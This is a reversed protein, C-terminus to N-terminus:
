AVPALEVAKYSKPEALQKQVENLKYSLFAVVVILACSFGLAIGGVVAGRDVEVHIKDVEHHLDHLEGDVQHVEADVELVQTEFGVYYRVTRSNLDPQPYRNNNGNASLGNTAYFAFSSRLISIDDSSVMVPEDFVIWTVAETCPPTTFSGPYTYYSRRAPLFTDYPNVPTPSDVEGVQVIGKVLAVNSSSGQSWLNQLFTNNSPMFDLASQQLFVGLVVYKTVGNVVASHVLHAEASYFGGAISHESPSHFHIQALTWEIGEYSMTLNACNAEQFSIEFTYNNAFQEWKHCGGFSKTLPTIDTLSLDVTTGVINIPSQKGATNTLACASSGAAKDWYEPGCPDQQTAQCSNSTVEYTRGTVAISPTLAALLLLVCFSLTFM